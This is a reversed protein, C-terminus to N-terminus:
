FLLIAFLTSELWVAREPATQDPDVNNAYARKNSLKTYSIKPCKGYQKNWHKRSITPMTQTAPTTLGQTNM